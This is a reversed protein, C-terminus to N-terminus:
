CAQLSFHFPFIHFPYLHSFFNESLALSARLWYFNLDYSLAPQSLQEESNRYESTSDSYKARGKYHSPFIHLSFTFSLQFHNREGLHNRFYKGSRRNDAVLLTRDYQVLAIGITLLILFNSLILLISWCPRGCSRMPRSRPNLGQSVPAM